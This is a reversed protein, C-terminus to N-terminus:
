LEYTDFDIPPLIVYTAVDISPYGRTAAAVTRKWIKTKKVKQGLDNSILLTKILEMM